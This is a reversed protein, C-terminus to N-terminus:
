DVRKWEFPESDFPFRGNKDSRHYNGRLTRGDESIKLTYEWVRTLPPFGKRTTVTGVLVGDRYSWTESIIEQPVDLGSVVVRDGRQTISIGGSWTGTVDARRVANLEEKTPPPTYSFAAWDSRALGHGRRGTYEWLVLRVKFQQKGGGSLDLQEYPLSLADSLAQKDNSVVIERGVYVQGGASKFKGDRDKLPRGNADFFYAAVEIREGKLHEVVGESVIRISQTGEVSVGEEMQAIAIRGAPVPRTPEESPEAPTPEAVTKEEAVAPEAPVEEDSPEAERAAAEVRAREEEAKRQAEAAEEKARAEEDARRRAERAAAEARERELEAKKLAEGAEAKAQAEEDARRKAEEAQAMAKAQEELAKKLAAEAEAKAASEMEARQKAEEAEAQLREYEERIRRLEEEAEHKAAADEEAKIRAREERLRASDAEAAKVALSKKADEERKAEYDDSVWSFGAEVDGLDGEIDLNPEIKKRTISREQERPSVWSFAEEESQTAARPAAEADQGTRESPSETESSPPETAALTGAATEEPGREASESAATTEAQGNPVSEQPAAEEPKAVVAPAAALNQPTAAKGSDGEEGGRGCTVAACMLVLALVMCAAARLAEEYRRAM